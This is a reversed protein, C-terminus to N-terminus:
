HTTMGAHFLVEVKSTEPRPDFHWERIM